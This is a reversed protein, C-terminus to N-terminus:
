PRSYEYQSLLSLIILTLQVGMAIKWATRSPETMEADDCRSSAEEVLLPNPDTIVNLFLAVLSSQSPACFEENDSERPSEVISAVENKSDSNSDEVEQVHAFSRNANTSLQYLSYGLETAVDQSDADFGKAQHFQRIGTYVSTDWSYGLVGTTFELCPFGLEEAEAMGLRKVGSSDLSWYAPCEPQRFRSQDDSKLDAFPCLFLYGPPINNNRSVKAYYTMQSVLIYDDHNSSVGLISFINNAQALWGCLENEDSWVLRYVFGDMVDCSSMRTWGSEMVLSSGGERAWWGDDYVVMNLLVGIAKSHEIGTGPPCYIVAGLQVSANTSNLLQLHRLHRVCLSHYRYLPTSDIISSEEPLVLVSRVLSPSSELSRSGRLKLTEYEPPALDVCLGGTSSRIWITCDVSYKSIRILCLSIAFVPQKGPTHELCLIRLRHCGLRGGIYHTSHFLHLCITKRAM